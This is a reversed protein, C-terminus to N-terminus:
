IERYAVFSDSLCVSLYILILQLIKKKRNETPVHKSFSSSFFISIFNFSEAQCKRRYTIADLLLNTFIVNIRKREKTCPEWVLSRPPLSLAYESFSLIFTISLFYSPSTLFRVLFTKTPRFISMDQRSTSTCCLVKQGKKVFSFVASLVFTFVFFAFQSIFFFKKKRKFTISFRFFSFRAWILRFHSGFLDYQM